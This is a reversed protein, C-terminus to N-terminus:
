EHENLEIHMTKCKCIPCYMHKHHGAPRYRGEQRPVFMVGGCCSCKLRSIIIKGGLYRKM